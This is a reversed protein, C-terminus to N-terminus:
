ARSERTQAQCPLKATVTDFNRHNFRLPRDSTQGPREPLVAIAHVNSRMRKKSFISLDAMLDEVKEVVPQGGFGSLDFEVILAFIEIVRKACIIDKNLHADPRADSSNQTKQFTLYKGLSKGNNFPLIFRHFVPSDSAKTFM